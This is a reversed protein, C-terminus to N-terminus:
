QFIELLLTEYRRKITDIWEQEDLLDLVHILVTSEAPSYELWASGPTATIICSLVALAAPDKLELPMKIFGARTERQQGALIIRTVALNSRMIDLTVELILRMILVPRRIRPKHPQLQAMAHSAAFAVVFGLLVHGPAASQQLLLWMLTLAITLLPYPFIRSM